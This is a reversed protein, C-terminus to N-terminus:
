LKYRLLYDEHQYNFSYIYGNKEDVVFPAGPTIDFTYETIPEGDYSFTQMTYDDKTAGRSRNFVYFCKEGAYGITYYLNSQKWVVKDIYTEGPGVIKKKLTLNELDYIDLRDKYEYLYIVVSDNYIPYGFDPDFSGTARKDSENISIKGTYEGQKFDYRNISLIDMDFIFLTSDNKLFMNNKIDHRKFKFDKKIKIRLLSDIEIEKISLLNGLNSVILRGSTNSCFQPIIRFEEPGEGTKGASGLYKLDPRSYFYLISDGKFRSVILMDQELAMFAPFMVADISAKEAILHKTAPFKMEKANQCGFTAALFIPLIWLKKM